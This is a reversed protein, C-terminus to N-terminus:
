LAEGLFLNSYDCVSHSRSRYVRRLRFIFADLGEDEGIRLPDSLRQEGPRLRLQKSASAAVGYSCATVDFATRCRSKRGLSEGPPRLLKEIFPTKVKAARKKRLLNFSFLLAFVPLSGTLAPFLWKM